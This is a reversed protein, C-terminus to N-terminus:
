SQTEVSLKGPTWKPYNLKIWERGEAGGRRHLADLACALESDLADVKDVLTCVDCRCGRAPKECDVM